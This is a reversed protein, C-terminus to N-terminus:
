RLAAGLLSVPLSLMVFMLAILFMEHHDRPNTLSYVFFGIAGSLFVLGCIAAASRISRWNKGRTEELRQQQLLQERLSRLETEIEQQTM